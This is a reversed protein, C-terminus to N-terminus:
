HPKFSVNQSVLSAHLAGKAPIGFLIMLPQLYLAKPSGSMTGKFCPKAMNACVQSM